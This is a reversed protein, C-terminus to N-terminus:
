GPQGPCIATLHNNNNAAAWLGLQLTTQEATTESPLHRQKETDLPDYICKSLLLLEPLKRNM